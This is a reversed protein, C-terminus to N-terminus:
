KVLMIKNVVQEHTESSAWKWTYNGKSWAATNIESDERLIADYIKRGSADYVIFLGQRNQTKVILKDDAFFVKVTESIQERSGNIDSAIAWTYQGQKLHSIEFRGTWNSLGPSTNLVYDDYEQWLSNGDPRYVLVLSTEDLGLSSLQTFFLSDYYNYQSPNGYYRIVADMDADEPANTIVNWWRDHSLFYEPQVVSEDAAAWHNEIRIFFSDASGMSNIDLDMEAYDADNGGTQTIIKEEALVAFSLADDDNLYMVSPVFDQPLEIDVDTEPGSVTIRSHVKQGSADMATIRVPVGSYYDPAYHLFQMVKVNWTNAGSQVFSRVRFEPFGKSFIWNEFFATLDEETYLQFHDRLDYSSVDRFAFADMFTRVAEFFDEDGMVGRLTHAMDAGKSYVHDGYTIAHPVPSVPYRAGDNRHARRLVDKHNARVYDIYADHGYIIETFLAESFSAWGENIWMDGEDRCTILDGWWMHALEHAYLTEYALGGNIAFLPYAINTAHEMAGGSFPVAVYGVRPWRYPGYHQEFGGLCSVLNIMGNKMATTDTAKAALWIPIEDGSISQFSSKAHVYNSVAVSALYSPIEENLTWHTYLSDIGVNDVQTRIGNCYATRGQSTLVHLTYTSREVFNDFCPFWARGFNHPDAEFGVGLNYAYGSSFYFGGFIPDTDPNGRYYVSVDYVDGENLVSPLAIQLLTGTHVFVLHQFGAKVSDVTLSQLDLNIRNINDMRSSFLVTCRGKIIQLNMQTLDLDIDYNIIDLTDSRLNDESQSGGGSRLQGHNRHSCHKGCVQARLGIIGVFILLVSIGWSKWM